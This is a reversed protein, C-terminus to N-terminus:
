ALIIGEDAEFAISTASTARGLYQHVKGTGSVPTTTVGGPTSDSLYYRAGITLGSRQNNSGEFYVAGSVGSTVGALVFGDAEKGSASADAKRMKPTGTDNWVNVFDGASLTESAVMSITDEGFGTPFLTPDLKGSADLAVIKNADAVGASTQASVKEQTRGSVLAIYKDGAM